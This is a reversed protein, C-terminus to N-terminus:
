QRVFALTTLGERQRTSYLVGLFDATAPDFRLIQKIGGEVPRSVYLVGDAGFTLGTVLNATGPGTAAFTGLFAGTVADFRVVASEAASAVYLKADPGIALANAPTTALTSRLAGTTADFALVGATADAVFLVDDRWAMGRPSRLAAIEGVPLAAYSSAGAAFRVIQFRRTGPNAPDTIAAIAYLSGDAATALAPFETGSLDALKAIFHGDSGFRYIVGSGLIDGSLFIEGNRATTLAQLGENDGVLPPLEAGTAADLRGVYGPGQAGPHLALLEARASPSFAAILFGVWWAFRAM